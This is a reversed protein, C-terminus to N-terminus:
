CLSAKIVESSQEKLPKELAKLLKEGEIKQCNSGQGLQPEYKSSHRKSLHCPYKVEAGKGEVEVREQDMLAM